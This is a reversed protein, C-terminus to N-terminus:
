EPKYNFKTLFPIAKVFHDAAAAMRILGLTASEIRGESGSKLADMYIINVAQWTPTCDEVEVERGEYMVTNPKVEPEKWSIDFYFPFAHELRNQNGADAIQYAKFISLEFGGPHPYLGMTWRKYISDHQESYTKKM